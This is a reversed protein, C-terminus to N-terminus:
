RLRVPMAKYEPNSALHGFRYHVENMAMVAAACKAAAIAAPAIVVAAAFEMADIVSLQPDCDREGAVPRIQKAAFADDTM